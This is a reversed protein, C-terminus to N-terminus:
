SFALSLPVTILLIMAYLSLVIITLIGLFKNLSKLNEFGTTLLQEDDSELAKKINSSFKFLYTIPFYYIVAMIIYIVGIFGFNMPYIGGTFENLQSFGAMIFIAILVILGLGIYGVIALFKAWKTTEFLYNRIHDNIKLQNDSQQNIEMNEM